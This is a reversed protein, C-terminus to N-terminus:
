KGKRGPIRLNGEVQIEGLSEVNIDPPIELYSLVALEPLKRRTAEKVSSRAKPSCLIVPPFGKSEMIHVAKSILEAWDEVMPAASEMDPGSLEAPSGRSWLIDLPLEPPSGRGFLAEASPEPGSSRNTFGQELKPELTLVRLTLREDAYELCIQSRLSQRIQDIIMEPPAPGLSGWDALIELIVAIHRISVRESVLSQLIERIIGLPLLTKVEGTVVPYKEEAADLIAQVEDRGLLEPARSRIIGLAHRVVVSAAAKAAARLNEPVNMIDFFSVAPRGSSIEPLIGKRNGTYWGLELRGRGAELGKFLVRYEDNKLVPSESIRVPPVSFGLLNKLKKIEANLPRAIFEEMEPEECTLEFLSVGLEVALPRKVKVPIVMRNNRKGRRPSKRKEPGFRAFVLSVDRYSAEPIPEGIKGYSVLNKALMVNKVVPVGLEGAARVLVGVASDKVLLVIVPAFMNEEDFKLAAASDDGSVIVDCFLICSNLVSASVASDPSDSGFPPKKM